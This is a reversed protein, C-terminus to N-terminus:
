QGKIGLHKMGEKIKIVHKINYAIELIIHNCQYHFVVAHRLCCLWLCILVYIVDHVSLFIFLKIMFWNFNLCCSWLGISIYVVRDLVLQFLVVRDDVLWFIFSMDDILWFIFLVIMFWDFYLCSSWLRFMLSM